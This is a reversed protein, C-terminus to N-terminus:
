INRSINLRKVHRSLLCGHFMTGVLSTNICHQGRFEWTVHTFSPTGNSGEPSKTKPATKSENSEACTKLASTERSMIEVGVEVKQALVSESNRSAPAIVRGISNKWYDKRERTKAVPLNKLGRSRLM